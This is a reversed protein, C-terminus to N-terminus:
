RSSRTPPRPGSSSTRSRLPSCSAAAPIKAAPMEAATPATPSSPSSCVTPRGPPHSATCAGPKNRTADGITGPSLVRHPASGAPAIRTLHLESGHEGNFAWAVTNGDPSIAASTPTRVRDLSDLLSALRPDSHQRNLSSSTTCRSRPAPLTRSSRRPPEALLPSAVACGHPFALMSARPLATQRQANVM